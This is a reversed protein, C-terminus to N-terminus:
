MVLFLFLHIMCKTLELGRMIILGLWQNPFWCSFIFELRNDWLLYWIDSSGNLLVRRYLTCGMLRKTKWEVFAVLRRKTNAAFYTNFVVIIKCLPLHIASINTRRLGCATLWRNTLICCLVIGAVVVCCFMLLFEWCESGLVIFENLLKVLEALPKERDYSFLSKGINDINM